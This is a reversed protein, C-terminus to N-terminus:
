DAPIDPQLRIRYFRNATPAEPVASTAPDHFEIADLTDGHMESVYDWTKLDESRELIYAGAETATM